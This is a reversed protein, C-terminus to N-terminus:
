LLFKWFKRDITLVALVFCAMGAPGTPPTHSIGFLLGSMVFFFVSWGSIGIRSLAFAAASVGIVWGLVGIVAVLSFTGGGVIPDLFMMNVQRAVLDQGSSNLSQASRILLGSAIGAIADIASYFVIFCAMGIRALWVAPGKLKNVLIVVALAVLGFLPLQLVHLTFWWDAQPSISEFITKNAQGVPHWIELVGLLLPAGLVIWKKWGHSTHPQEARETQKM